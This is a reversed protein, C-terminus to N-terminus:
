LKMVNKIHLGDFFGVLIITTAGISKPGLKAHTIRFIGNNLDVDKNKLALAEGLRLGCGYLIRILLPLVVPSNTGADMVLNDCVNIIHQMEEQTFIYPVYDSYIKPLEPIFVEYGLVALYRGFQRVISTYGAITLSKKSILTRQWYLVAAETLQPITEGYKILSDDLSKLVFPENRLAQRRTNLLSLYELIEDKFVSQYYNLPPLVFKRM